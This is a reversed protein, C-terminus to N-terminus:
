NVLNFDKFKVIELTFSELFKKIDTFGGGGKRGELFEKMLGMAEEPIDQFNKKLFKAFNDAATAADQTDIARLDQIAKELNENAMAAAQEPLEMADSFGEIYDKLLQGGLANDTFIAGQNKKAVEKLIKEAEEGGDVVAKIAKQWDALKDYDADAGLAEWIPAAQGWPSAQALM